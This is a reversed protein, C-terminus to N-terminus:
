VRHRSVPHSYRRVAPSRDSELTTAVGDLGCGHYQEPVTPCISRRPSRARITGSRRAPSVCSRVLWFAAGPMTTPYSPSLATMFSRAVQGRGGRGRAGRSEAGAHADGCARRQAFQPLSSVQGRAPRHRGVTARPRWASVLNPPSRRRCPAACTCGRQRRPLGPWHDLRLSRTPGGRAPLCRASSRSTRGPKRM